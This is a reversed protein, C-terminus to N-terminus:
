AIEGWVRLVKDSIIRAGYERAILKAEKFNTAYFSKTISNEYQVYYTKSQLPKTNSFAMILDHDTIMTTNM